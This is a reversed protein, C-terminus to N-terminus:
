CRRRSRRGRSAAACRCTMRTGVSLDHGACCQGPVGQPRPGDVAQRDAVHIGAFMRSRREEHRARPRLAEEREAADQGRRAGIPRSSATSRGPNPWECPRVSSKAGEAIPSNRCARIPSHPRPVGCTSPGSSPVPAASNRDRASGAGPSRRGPRTPCNGAPAARVCCSERRRPFRRLPGARLRRRRSRGGVRRCGHRRRRLPGAALSAM